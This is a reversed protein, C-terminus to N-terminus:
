RHRYRMGAGAIMKMCGECPPQSIFMTAGQCRAWDAHIIANQEAHVAICAGPGTDYSSNPAIQDYTLKGRPCEGKLCSSSGPAGGNYGTSVIRRDAGVIVAGVSRRTCDARLAVADAIDLFYINWDPRGTKRGDEDLWDQLTM